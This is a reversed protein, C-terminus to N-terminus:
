NVQFIWMDDNNRNKCHVNIFGKGTRRFKVIKWIPDTSFKYKAYEELDDDTMSSMKRLYPKVNEILFDYQFVVVTPMGKYGDLTVGMAIDSDLRNDELDLYQVKVKYPLRACLDKLLLQKDENNM